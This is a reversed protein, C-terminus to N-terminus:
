VSAPVALVTLTVGGKGTTGAATAYVRLKKGTTLTGGFTLISGAAKNTFAAAAAFKTASGSEEGITFATQTGGNDDFVEDVHAIILVTRDGTANALLDNTGTATKSYPISAGGGAAVLAAVAAASTLAAPLVTGPAIGAGSMVPASSFTKVGVITQAVGTLGTAAATNWLTASRGVFEAKCGAPITFPNSAGLANIQSGAVPYVLLGYTADSNVITVIEDAAAVPLKVGTAGTAGTVINFEATLATADTISSGAAAPTASSRYLKGAADYGAVKSPIVAGSVADVLLGMEAQDPQDYNGPMLRVYGTLIDAGSGAVASATGIYMNGAATKTCARVGQTDNWYIPDGVAWAQSGVKTLEFVGELHGEVATAILAATAAVAFFAGVKFGGGSAVAYPATFSLVKGEQIKNLM